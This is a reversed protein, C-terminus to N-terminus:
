VNLGTYIQNRIDEKLDEPERNEPKIFPKLVVKITGPSGRKEFPHLIRWSNQIAVPQLVVQSNTALLFAGKKFSQLEAPNGAIGGEPFIVVNYGESLRELAAKYSGYAKFANQRDVGIDLARFFQGFLPLKALPQKGLFAYPGKFISLLVIIDLESSHNSCLIVPGSNHSQRHNVVHVSVGNLKLFWRSLWSRLKYAESHWNKNSVLVILVPYALIFWVALATFCYYFWFSALLRRVM